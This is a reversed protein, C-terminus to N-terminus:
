KDKSKEKKDCNPCKKVADEILKKLDIGKFLADFM